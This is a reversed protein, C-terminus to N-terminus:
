HDALALPRKDSKKSVEISNLVALGLAIALMLWFPRARMGHHFLSYSFAPVMLLTLGTGVSMTFKRVFILFLMTGVIGYSFLLNAASSHIEQENHHFRAMYGEGAGVLLHEPHDAIRDLGRDRLYDDPTSQELAQLRNQLLDADLNQLDTYLALGLLPLVAITLLTPRHVLQLGALLAIGLIGARSYTRLELYFACLLLAYIVLRPVNYRPAIMAVITACLLVHYALQNANFFFLQLRGSETHDAFPISLVVLMVLTAAFGYLTWRMWDDGRDGLMVLYGLFVAFNFAYFATSKFFDYEDTIATWTFNCAFVYVVFALLSFVPWAIAPPMKFRLLLIPVCLVLVLLFDGPQPSGPEYLNFPLTLIVFAWLVERWSASLDIWSTSMRSAPSAARPTM